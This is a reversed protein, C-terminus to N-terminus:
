LVTDISGLVWRGAIFTITQSLIDCLTYLIDAVALNRIFLVTIKDLNIANYRISAYIVTGNGFIGFVTVIFSYIGLPIIQDSTLNIDLPDATITVM